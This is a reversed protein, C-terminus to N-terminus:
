GEALIDTIDDLGKQTTFVIVSDGIEITSNGDPMIMRGRRIISAVLVGKKTRLKSLPVGVVDSSERIMFELSEVKDEIVTYISEVNSSGISNQMARAYSVITEATLNKPRITSGMDLHDVIYGMSTRNIKTIIKAEPNVHRAYLSMFINQEDIGTLTVFSECTEVGEERLVEQDSGDVCIIMAEPLEDSLEEARERDSELIKVSIGFGTLMKALYFAIKGGGIIMADSVPQIDVGIQQFFKRADKPAALISITDGSQLVFNGNPIYADDGRQVAGILFQSGIRRPLDRLAKGSLISREPIVFQLMEARGRAFTEIKIASPFRLIRAIEEAANYEPNVVLSLGLEEKIYGIERSYLPNRIRAITRCRGAKRAFLCCLMNEEDSDTVAILLDADEIGADQLVSYSAGNGTVGLVDFQGAVNEVVESDTDVIAIDHGEKVLSRVIMEGVKGCGVVIIRM